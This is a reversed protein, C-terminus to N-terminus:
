FRPIVFRIPTCRPV